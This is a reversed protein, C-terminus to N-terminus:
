NLSNHFNRQSCQAQATGIRRLIGERSPSPGGSAYNVLTRTTEIEVQTGQIRLDLEEELDTKTEANEEHIDRNTDETRRHLSRTSKNLSQLIRLQKGDLRANLKQRPWRARQGICSLADEV